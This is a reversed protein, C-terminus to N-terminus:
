RPRKKIPLPTTPTQTKAASKSATPLATQKVPATSDASIKSAEKSAQPNGAEQSAAKDARLEMEQEMAKFQARLSDTLGSIIVSTPVPLDPVAVARYTLQTGSGSPILTTTSDMKTGVLSRSRLTQYPTLEIQRRSEYAFSLIGFSVHGKQEVEIRKGDRQLVRSHEMNPVFTDMADFDTLVDWAVRQSVPLRYSIDVVITDNQEQVRIDPEPAVGAFAALCPLMFFLLALRRLRTIGIELLFACLDNRRLLLSAQSLLCKAPLGAGVMMSNRERIPILSCTM